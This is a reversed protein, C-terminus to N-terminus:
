RRYLMLAIALLLGAIIPLEVGAIYGVAFAPNPM